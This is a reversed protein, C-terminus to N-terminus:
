ALELSFLGVSERLRRRGEEASIKGTRVHNLLHFLQVTDLVLGGNDAFASVDGDNGHLVRQREAPDRKMFQNVIYWMSDPGRGAEKAYRTSFRIFQTIGETKAGKTYGKVEGLAIWNPADPDSIRLDELHESPDATADADVVVFGIEGLARIVARVL